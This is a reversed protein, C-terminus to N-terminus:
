RCVTGFASLVSNLDALDVVGDGNVDGGTSMPVSTGFNSLVLNLDALDVADDGNADGPCPVDPLLAMVADIDAQTIAAANEGGIGDTEDMSLMMLVQQFGVGQWVYASYAVDDGTKVTDNDFIMPTTDDLTAGLRSQILSLDEATVEGDFDFDGFVFRFQALAPDSPHDNMSGPTIAFGTIDTDDFLFSGGTPMCAPNGGAVDEPEPDCSGDYLPGAQDTPAKFQIFGDDDVGTEYELTSLSALEGYIWSEDATRTPKVEFNGMMDDTTRHGLMPNEAYFRIRSLADPNFGPTESLENEKDRVYEKGGEHSWALEDVVQFHEVVMPSPANDVPTEMGFDVDGNWDVDPNVDKVFAYGPGYVSQGNADISHNPRKRVLLYTSSRNSGLTGPTDTGPIHLATTTAGNLYRLNTPGEPMGSNFGPNATLYVAGIISFGSANANVITFMGNEDLRYGDLSYAEDIEARIDPVGEIDGSSGGKFLAIAYGTLDMGPKGYLEIYQRGDDAGPPNELIENIVVQGSASGALAVVGAAALVMKKIQM